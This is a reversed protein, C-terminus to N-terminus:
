EERDVNTSITQAELEEIISESAGLQDAKQCLWNCTTIPQAKQKELHPADQLPLVHQGDGIQGRLGWLFTNKPATNVGCDKITQLGKDRLEVTQCQIESRLHSYDTQTSHTRCNVITALQCARRKWEWLDSTYNKEIYSDVPHTETQIDKDCVKKKPLYKSILVDVAKVRDVEELINFLHIVHPNNRAYDLVENLYRQPTKSFSTAMKVNCFGYRSGKYKIHGIKMNSPILAGVTLCLVCFGLFQVNSEKLATLNSDNNVYNKLSGLSLREETKVQEMREQDNLVQKGALMKDLIHTPMKIQEDISALTTMLRNITSVLFMINQMDRWVQWLKSFLPFVTRVPVAAKYKVATHLDQLIIRVREVCQTASQVLVDVDNLFKRTYVEYQRYFALLDFIQIYNDRTLEAAVDIEVNGTENQIIVSDEIATSLMNVRQMVVVLNNSLSSLCARGADVLNFPLDPIGEGGKKCDRNFLRVGSVIQVLENLQALKEPVPLAVFVRLDELSFVSELAAVGEKLNIIQSPNGLGSALIIYISIKRFLKKSDAEGSSKPEEDLIEDVLPRLCNNISELHKDILNQLRDYNKQMVFQMKLTTIPIEGRILMAVCENVFYELNNRNITKSLLKGYKPNLLLLEILYTVYDEEVTVYQVQCNRTVESAINKIINENCAM